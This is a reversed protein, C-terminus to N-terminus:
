SMEADESDDIGMASLIKPNRSAKAFSYGSRNMINEIEPDAGNELLLKVADVNDFSIAKMLPTDGGKSQSNVDAGKSILLKIM